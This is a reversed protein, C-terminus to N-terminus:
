YTVTKKNTKIHKAINKNFPHVYFPNGSLLFM